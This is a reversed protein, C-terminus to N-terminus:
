FLIPASQKNPLPEFISNQFDILGNALYSEDLWLSRNYLYQVLRLTIGIILVLWYGSTYSNEKLENITYTNNSKSFLLM